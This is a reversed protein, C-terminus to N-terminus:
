STALIDRITRLLATPHLPKSLLSIGKTQLGKQAIIDETYGSIFIVKIDQCIKKLEDYTEKGNMIPMILDCLVLQISDKYENFVRIADKGDTAELIYYGFEQLLDKTAQRVRTDDEILLIMENGSLPLSYDENQIEQTAASSLPLYIKFMTGLGLESYVNIFGNHQKIIGYIISLGLGTGKGMEKTTFFPEFIKQRIKADMGTGTDSVTVLGYVGSKGYGHVKIFHTDISTLELAISFVGGNPMADRANTALNMLVQEIQNEDVLVPIAGDTIRTKCQIDEGIVRALLREVKRVITNLNVPQRNIVRKRGFSLLGKTLYAARDACELMSNINRRHPDDCNMRMLTVEGYGMIATLINNFDHAIGGTLVGISEMKQSQLLQSELKRHETIDRCIRIVNLAGDIGRAPVARIELECDHLSVHGAAPAGSQFCVKVPCNECSTKRHRWLSYCCQGVMSSTTIGIMVATAKNAWLVELSPSILAISDPIADLLASFQDSIARFKCESDRLESESQKRERLLEWERLARTVIHPLDVLNEHSKVMYDLAGAKLTEGVAQESGNNTMVLVPFFGDEPPHNLVETAKGDPLNLDMLVIDPHWVNKISRYEQLTVAVHFEPTWDDNLIARRIVDSHQMEGTVILIRVRGPTVLCGRKSQERTAKKPDRPSQGRADKQPEALDEIVNSM